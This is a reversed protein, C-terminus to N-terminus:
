KVTEEVVVEIIRDREAPSLSSPGGNGDDRLRVRITRSVVEPSPRATKNRLDSYVTWALSAIGVILAGLSIPDLVYQDPRARGEQAQLEAEVDMVLQPQALEAALRTAAGRATDGIVDNM